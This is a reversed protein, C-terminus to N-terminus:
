RIPIFCEWWYHLVLDASPINQSNNLLM